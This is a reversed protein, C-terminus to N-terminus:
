GPMFDTRALIEKEAQVRVFDYAMLRKVNDPTFETLGETKDIVVGRWAIVCAAYTEISKDIDQEITQFTAIPAGAKQREYEARRVANLNSRMVQKFITSEKGVVTLFMGTGTGDPKTIEFEHGKDAERTPDIEAISSAKTM